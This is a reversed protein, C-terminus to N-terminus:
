IFLNRGLAGMGERWPAIGNEYAGNRDLAEWCLRLIDDPGRYGSGFSLALIQKILDQIRERREGDRCYIAFITLAWQFGGVAAPECDVVLEVARDAAMAIRPDDLPGQLVECLLLVLLAHRMVEDRASQGVEQANEDWDWSQGLESALREAEARLLKGPAGQDTGARLLGARYVVMGNVRGIIRVIRRSFGVFREVWEEGRPPMEFLPAVSGIQLDISTCAFQLTSYLAIMDRLSSYFPTASELPLEFATHRDLALNGSDLMDAMCRVFFGM